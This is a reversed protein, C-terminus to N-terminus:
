STLLLRAEQLPIGLSLIDLAEDLNQVVLPIVNPLNKWSRLSAMAMAQTMETPAVYILHSPSTSPLETNVFAEALHAQLSIIEAFNREYKTVDTLDILQSQGESYDPDQTYQQFSTLSQEVTVEGFCWVYVLSQEAYVRYNVPM